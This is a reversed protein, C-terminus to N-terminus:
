AKTIQGGSVKIAVADLAKSAPGNAVSGDAIHFSSGHCPCVILGNEVKGVTCGQHTCVATFAKFTGASPQTVVIQQDSLVTGGGVPVASTATLASSTGASGSSSSSGASGASTSSTASSTDSSSSMGGAPSTSGAAASSSKSSSCGACLAGVAVAMGLVYSRRSPDQSALCSSEDHGHDQIQDQAPDQAHDAALDTATM